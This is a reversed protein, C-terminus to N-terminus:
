RIDRGIKLWWMTRAMADRVRNVGRHGATVHGHHAYLAEARLAVPIVRQPIIRKRKDRELKEPEKAEKSKSKPPRLLICGERMLLKTNPEVFWREVETPAIDLKALAKVADKRQTEEAEPNNLKHLQAVVQQCWGDEQQLKHLEADDPLILYRQENPINAPEYGPLIRCPTIIRREAPEM